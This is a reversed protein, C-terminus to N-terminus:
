ESELENIREMLIKLDEKMKVQREHYVENMKAAMHYDDLLREYPNRPFDNYKHVLYGHQFDYDKDMLKQNYNMIVASYGEPAKRFEGTRFEEAGIRFDKKWNEHAEDKPGFNKVEVEGEDKIRYKVSEKGLRTLLERGYDDKPYASEMNEM